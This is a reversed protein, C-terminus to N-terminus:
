PASGQCTKPIDDTLVPALTTTRSPLIVNQALRIMAHSRDITSTVVSLNSLRLPTEGFYLYGPKFLFSGCGLLTLADIGLVVDQPCCQMVYFQINAHIIAVQIPITIADITCLQHGTISQLNQTSNQLPVNHHHQLEKCLAYISAIHYCWYRCTCTLTQQQM